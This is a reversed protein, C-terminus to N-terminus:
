PQAQNLWWGKQWQVLWIQWRPLVDLVFLREGQTSVVSRFSDVFRDDYLAFKWLLKGTTRDLGIIRTAQRDDTKQRFTILASNTLAMPLFESYRNPSTQVQWKVKGTAADLAVVLSAGKKVKQACTLYLSDADMTWVDGSNCNFTEKGKQWLVQGAGDLALFSGRQFIPELNPRYIVDNPLNIYLRNPRGQMDKITGVITRRFRVQGTKFDYATIASLGTDFFGDVGSPTLGSTELFLHHDSQAILDRTATLPPLSVAFQEVVRGTKPNLSQIMRQRNGLQIFSVEDPRIALGLGDGVVRPTFWPRQIAWQQQGTAPNLSRLENDVQIYLQHHQWVVALNSVIEDASEDRNPQYTWLMQGSQADLAQLYARDCNKTESQTCFNLLVKDEAAVAGRSFFLEPTVPHVWILKGSRTNLALLTVTPQTAYKWGLVGVVIFGIGLLGIQWPRM